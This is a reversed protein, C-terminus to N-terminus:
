KKEKKWNGYLVVPLMILGVLLAFGVAINYKM